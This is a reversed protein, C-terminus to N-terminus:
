PPPGPGAWLAPDIDVGGQRVIWHLHSGTSCGTSGMASVQQGAVVDGSTVLFASLHALYHVLGDAQIRQFNGLGNHPPQSGALGSCDDGTPNPGAYAVTGAAPSWIANGEVNAIDVGNHFWPLEPPCGYGAGSIGTYSAACGFGRTVFGNTPWLGLGAPAPTGDGPSGGPNYTGLDDFIVPTPPPPNDASTYPANPGPDQVPRFWVPNGGVVERGWDTTLGLRSATGMPTMFGITYTRREGSPVPELEQVDIRPLPPEHNDLPEIRPTWYGGIQQGDSEIYRLFFVDVVPILAPEPQRNWVEVVFYQYRAGERESAPRYYYDRLTYVINGPGTIYVDQDLYFEGVRYYATEQPMPTTFGIIPLGPTTTRPPEPTTTIYVPTSTVLGPTTTAWYPTATWGLPTSTAPPVIPTATVTTTGPVATLFIPPETIIISPSTPPIVPTTTGLLRTETPVATGTEAAWYVVGALPEVDAELHILNCAVLMLLQGVLCLRFLYRWLPLHVRSPSTFNQPLIQGTAWSGPMTFWRNLAKGKKNM